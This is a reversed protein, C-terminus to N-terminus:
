LFTANKACLGFKIAKTEAGSLTFVPLIDIAQMMVNTHCQFNGHRFLESVTSKAFLKVDSFELWKGSGRRCASPDSRHLLDGM